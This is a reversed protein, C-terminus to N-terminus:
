RHDSKRQITWIIQTQRGKGQKNQEQQELHGEQGHLIRPFGIQDSSLRTIFLRPLYVTNYTTSLVTWWRSALCQTDSGDM